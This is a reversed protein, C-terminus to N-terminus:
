EEPGYNCSLGTIYSIDNFLDDFDENNFLRSFVANIQEAASNECQIILDDVTENHTEDINFPNFWSRKRRNAWDVKTDPEAPYPKKPVKIGGGTLSELWNVLAKKWGNPDYLLDLGRYFVSLIRNLEDLGTEIGYITKFAELLYSAVGKPWSPGINVLAKTKTRYAKTKKMEQWFIVDLSAEVEKHTTKAPTGDVNWIWKESAWYVYPHIIRDVSYHCIFGCLYVALDLWDGDYSINKLRSFGMKLFEGTHQRHM